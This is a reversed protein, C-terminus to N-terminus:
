VVGGEEVGQRGKAIELRENPVVITERVFHYTQVVNYAPDM